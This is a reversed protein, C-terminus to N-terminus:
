GATRTRSARWAAIATLALAPLVVLLALV